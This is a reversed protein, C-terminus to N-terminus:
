GDSEGWKMRSQLLIERLGQLQTELRADLNGAASELVCGGLEVREDAIIDVQGANMGELLSARMENLMELDGPAVRLLLRSRDKCRRLAERVAALAVEKDSLGEGLIKVVAAHVIEVATDGLDDMGQQQSQQAAMIIARLAALCQQYEAQAALQGEQKGQSFGEARVQQRLEELDEIFRQKYEEYTLIAASMGSRATPVATLSGSDLAIPGMHPMEVAYSVPARAAEIGIPTTATGLRSQQPRLVRPEDALRVDRLLNASM